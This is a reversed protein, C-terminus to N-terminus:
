EIKDYNIILKITINDYKKIMWEEIWEEIMKWRSDKKIDISIWGIKPYHNHSIIIIISDWKM